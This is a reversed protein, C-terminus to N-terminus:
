RRQLADTVQLATEPDAKVSVLTAFEWHGTDGPDATANASDLNLFSEQVQHLLVRRGAAFGTENAVSISTPTTSTVETCTNVPVDASPITM